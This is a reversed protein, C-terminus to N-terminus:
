IITTKAQGAIGAPCAILLPLGIAAHTDHSGSGTGEDLEL